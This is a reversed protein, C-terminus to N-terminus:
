GSLQLDSNRERDDFNIIVTLGKIIIQLSIKYMQNKFVMKECLYTSGFVSM